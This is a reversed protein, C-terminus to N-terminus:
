GASLPKASLPKASRDRLHLEASWVRDFPLGLRSSTRSVSEADFADFLCIMRRRDAAAWSVLHEVRNLGLCWAGRDEISQLDDFAVPEAFSREVVVLSRGSGGVRGLVDPLDPVPGHSTASWIRDPPPVGIKRSVIRLSEADPAEFVCVVRRGDRSLVHGKPGIRHTQLCWRNRQDVDLLQAGTVPEQFAREIIVIAM